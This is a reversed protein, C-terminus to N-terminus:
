RHLLTMTRTMMEDSPQSADVVDLSGQKRYYEVLPETERLYIQFRKRVVTETDDARQVLEGGCEDCRGAQKPPIMAVHYVRGCNGCSRRGTIRSLVLAETCEFYIVQQIGLGRVEAWTDFAVAQALTRPFGDSLYGQDPQTQSLAAKVLALVLEDPVLEGRELFLGAQRGLASGKAVEQRLWHGTSFHDFGFETKLRGAVTGKGSGPPGLLIVRRRM